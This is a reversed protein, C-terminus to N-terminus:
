HWFLGLYQLDLFTVWAYTANEKSVISNGTLDTTWKGEEIIKTALDQFRM